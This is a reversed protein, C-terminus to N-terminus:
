RRVDCVGLVRRHVHIKQSPYDFVDVYFWPIKYEFIKIKIRKKIISNRQRSGKECVTYVYKRWARALARRSWWAWLWGEVSSRANHPLPPYLPFGGGDQRPLGASANCVGNWQGSATDPRRRRPAFRPHRLCDLLARAKIANVACSIPNRERM